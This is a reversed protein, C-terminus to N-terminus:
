QKKNREIEEIHNTVTYLALFLKEPMGCGLEEILRVAIEAPDSKGESLYRKISEEYRRPMDSCCELAAKVAAEGIVFDGLKDYEHGLILNKAGIRKLKELSARYDSLSQYFGIGQTPTGNGQISDGTILTETQLDYWCVCDSDHGPTHILKLRGELVEGDRLTVTPEVGRLWSQPAPSHEPFKTRIRVANAAPDTLASRGGEFTAVKVGYKGALEYHGTIHDGHCHTNLLWDIDTIELGLERLAPIVYTEPADAGSDILFNKSGRILVVGTWVTSFPTKMVYINNVIEEFQPM